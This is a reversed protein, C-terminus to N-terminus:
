DGYRDHLYDLTATQWDLSDVFSSLLLTTTHSGLDIGDKTQLMINSRPDDIRTLKIRGVMNDMRWDWGLTLAAPNASIFETYGTKVAAACMPATPITDDVGSILHSLPIAQLRELTLRVYGDTSVYLM